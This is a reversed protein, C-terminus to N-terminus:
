VITDLRLIILIMYIYEYLMLSEQILIIIDKEDLSMSVFQGHTVKDENLSAQLRNAADLLDDGSGTTDDM